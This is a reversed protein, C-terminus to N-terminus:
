KRAWLKDPLAADAPIDSDQMFTVDEESEVPAGMIRSMKEMDSEESAV